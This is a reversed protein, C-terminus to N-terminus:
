RPTQYDKLSLARNFDTYGGNFYRYFGIHKRVKIRVKPYHKAFKVPSTRPQISAANQLYISTPISKVLDVLNVRKQM